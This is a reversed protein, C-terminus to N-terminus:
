ARCSLMFARAKIMSCWWGALGLAVMEKVNLQRQVDNFDLPPLSLCECITLHAKSTEIGFLLTKIENMM